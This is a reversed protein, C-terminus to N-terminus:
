RSPRMPSISDSRPYAGMDVGADGNGRAPSGVKLHFDTPPNVFLPDDTLANLEGSQSSWQRLTLNAADWESGNWRGILTGSAAKYLNNRFVHGGQEVSERTVLVQTGRQLGNRVLINNKVLTSKAHSLSLGVKDCQYMVNGDVVNREAVGVWSSGLVICAM